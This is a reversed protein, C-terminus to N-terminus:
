EEDGVAANVERDRGLELDARRAGDPSARHEVVEDIERVGVGPVRADARVDLPIRATSTDGLKVQLRQQQQDQSLRRAAANLGHTEAARKWFRERVALEGYELPFPRAREVRKYIGVVRVREDRADATLGDRNRVRLM